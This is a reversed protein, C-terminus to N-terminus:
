KQIYGISELFDNERHFADASAASDSDFDKYQIELNRTLLHGVGPYVYLICNVDMKIAKDRFEIADQTMVISDQEGQIILTPPLSGSIYESPSYEAPNGKGEMLGVFYEDKAMNLAPSFLLIANPRDKGTLTRGKVSSLTAASAVLHGGASVGYGAIRNPDIGFKKANHRTWQFAACADEVADMPSTNDGTLRYEISIAVMGKKSFERARDFTWAPEGLTWAGGHFLLVAPRAKGFGAPRFIYAHLQQQGTTRYISVEPLKPIKANRTPSNQAYKDTHCSIAMLITIFIFSLSKVPALKIRNLLTNHIVLLPKFHQM